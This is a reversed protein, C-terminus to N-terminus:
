IGEGSSHQKRMTYIQTSICNKDASLSRLLKFEGFCPVLIPSFLADLGTRTSKHLNDIRNCEPGNSYIESHLHLAHQVQTTRSINFEAASLREERLETFNWFVLCIQCM